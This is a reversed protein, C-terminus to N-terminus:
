DDAPTEPAESSPDPEVLRKRLRNDDQCCSCPGKEFMVIACIDCWYDVEFRKEGELQYVRLVQAMPHQRYRRVLIEMPQDRLREDTRFARGRLDEVLPILEGQDTFIALTREGAEPVTSIGFQEKLADALWVVRGRISESRFEAPNEEPKQDGRVATATVAGIMALAILWRDVQKSPRM